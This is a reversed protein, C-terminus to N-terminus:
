AENQSFRGREAYRAPSRFRVEPNRAQPSVTRSNSLDFWGRSNAQVARSWVIRGRRLFFHSRCGRTRWISPRLTVSGNFHRRVRWSPRDAKLLSLQITTGCGCPCLLAASWPQPQEGILYLRQPVLADPLEDVLDTEFGSCLGASKLFRWWAHM